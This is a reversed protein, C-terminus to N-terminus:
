ESFMFVYNDYDSGGGAVCSCADGVLAWGKFGGTVLQLDSQSLVSLQSSDGVLDLILTRPKNSQKQFMTKEM